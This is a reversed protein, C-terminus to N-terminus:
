ETNVKQSQWSQSIYGKQQPFLFFYFSEEATIGIRGRSAAAAESGGVGVLWKVQSPDLMSDMFKSKDNHPM